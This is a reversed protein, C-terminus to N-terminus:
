DATSRKKGGHAGGLAILGLAGDRKRRPAAGVWTTDKPGFSVMQAPRANRACRGKRRQSFISKRGAESTATTSSCGM